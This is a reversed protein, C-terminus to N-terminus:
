CPQDGQGQGPTQTGASPLRGVIYSRNLLVGFHFLLQERGPIPLRQPREASNYREM